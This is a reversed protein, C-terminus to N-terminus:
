TGHAVDFTLQVVGEGLQAVNAMVLSTRHGSTPLFRMGDGLLIPMIAVEIRDVSGTPLLTRFLDGGGALWIEKGEEQRLADIVDAAADSVITADPHDAPDLTRSFVYNRMHKNIGMLEFTRRGMLITDFRAQFANWDFGVPATIWDYDGDPGAIYGDLSMAVNYVVPRM